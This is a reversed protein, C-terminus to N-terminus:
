DEDQKWLPHHEDSWEKSVKGHLMGQLAHRTPKYVAALFVHGAVQATLLYFLLKHWSYLFERLDLSIWQSQWVFFGTVSMGLFLIMAILFNAKQGGNFKHALKTRRYLFEIEVERWHTMEKFFAALSRRYVWILLWPVVMLLVGAWDHVMRVEFKWAGLWERLVELHLCLGTILLVLFLAAVVGHLMREPRNFREVWKM